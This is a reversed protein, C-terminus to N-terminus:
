SCGPLQQTGNLDIADSKKTTKCFSSGVYVGFFMEEEDGPFAPDDEFGWGESKRQKVIQEIMDATYGLKGAMDRKKYPKWEQKQEEARELRKNYAAWTATM